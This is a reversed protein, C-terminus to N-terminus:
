MCIYMYLMTSVNNGPLARLEAEIKKDLSYAMEIYIYIYIHIYICTSTHLYFCICTYIHICVYVYVRLESKGKYDL